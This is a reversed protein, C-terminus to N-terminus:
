PVLEMLEAPTCIVPPEFNSERCVQEIRPRLVANNLDSLVNIREAAAKADGGSAERHVVESCVLEFNDRRKNWWDRTEQQQGLRVIDRSSWVTLYSVVTTEVCVTPKKAQMEQM